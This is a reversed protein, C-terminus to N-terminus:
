RHPRGDRASAERSRVVEETLSVLRSVDGSTAGDLSVEVDGVKLSVTRGPDRQVLGRLVGVVFNLVEPDLQTILTLATVALGAASKGGEAGPVPVREVVGVESLHADLVDCLQDLDDDDEGPLRGFDIRLVGSVM